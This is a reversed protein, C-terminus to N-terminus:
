LKKTIARQGEETIVKLKMSCAMYDIKFYFRIWMNINLTIAVLLFVAPGNSIVQRYQNDINYVATRDGSEFYTKYGRLVKLSQTFFLTTVLNFYHTLITQKIPVKSFM